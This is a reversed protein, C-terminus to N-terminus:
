SSALDALTEHLRRHVDEFIEVHDNVPLNELDSLRAIADDVRAEGTQPLAFLAPAAEESVVDLYDTIQNGVIVFENASENVSHVSADSEATATDAFVETTEINVATEVVVVDAIEEVSEEGELEDDFEDDFEEFDDETTM